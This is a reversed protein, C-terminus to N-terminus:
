RYRNWSSSRYQAPASCMHAAGLLGLLLSRSTFFGLHKRYSPLFSSGRGSHYFKKSSTNPWLFGTYNKGLSIPYKPLSQFVALM